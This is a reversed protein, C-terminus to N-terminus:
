NIEQEDLREKLFDEFLKRGVSLRKSIKALRSEEQLIWRRFDTTDKKTPRFYGKGDQLNCITYEYGTREIIRRATREKDKVDDLWGQNEFLAVIQNLNLANEHGKPIISAVREVDLIESM